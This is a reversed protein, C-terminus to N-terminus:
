IHLCDSVVESLRNERQRYFHDTYDLIHLEANFTGRFKEASEVSCHEDDDGVFVFIENETIINKEDDTFLFDMTDLPPSILFIQHGNINLKKLSNFVVYAGFSYGSLIIKESSNINNKLYNYASIIDDVEGIGNDYEGTSEGVGRFNFRLTSYGVSSFVSCLTNVVNNYMSGGFTPHPHAVVAGRHEGSDHFLAKLKIEGTDITIIQEKNM